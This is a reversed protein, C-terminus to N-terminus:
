KVASFRGRTVLIALLHSSHYQLPSRYQLRKDNSRSSQHLFSANECIEQMQTKSTLRSSKLEKLSSPSATCIWCHKQLRSLMLMTPRSHMNTNCLRRSPRYDAGRWPASSDVALSSSVCSTDSLGSLVRKLAEHLSHERTQDPM